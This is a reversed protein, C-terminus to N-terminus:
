KEKGKNKLEELEIQLSEVKSREMLLLAELEANLNMSKSLQDRTVSLVNNYLEQKNDTM